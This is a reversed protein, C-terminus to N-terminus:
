DANELPIETSFRELRPNAAVQQSHQELDTDNTDMPLQEHIVLRLCQKM